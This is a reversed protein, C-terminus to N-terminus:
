RQGNDSYALRVKTNIAGIIISPNLHKIQPITTNNYNTQQITTTTNQAYVITVAAIVSAVAITVAIIVVMITFTIISKRM